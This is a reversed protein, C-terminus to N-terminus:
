YIIVKMVEYNASHTTKVAGFYKRSQLKGAHTKNIQISSNIPRHKMKRGIYSM